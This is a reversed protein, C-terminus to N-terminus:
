KGLTKKRRLIRHYGVAFRHAEDRVRRILNLGASGSEFRMPRASENIYINEKEKAISILPIKLRLNKLVAAAASLQGKGGDILILDPL